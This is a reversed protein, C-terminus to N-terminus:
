LRGRLAVALQGLAVVQATLNVVVAPAPRTQSCPNAQASLGGLVRGMLPDGTRHCLGVDPGFDLGFGFGLDLGLGLHLLHRRLRLLPVEVDV